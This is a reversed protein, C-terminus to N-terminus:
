PNVPTKLRNNNQHYMIRTIKYQQSQLCASYNKHTRPSNDKVNIMHSTLRM